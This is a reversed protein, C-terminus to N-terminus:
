ALEVLRPELTGDGVEITLLSRRPARRRQTPSGPNLIWVGDCLTVEPLHSHGYVVAHCGPFAAALRRGRRQRPGADHVMGIRVGGAEVVLREPLSAQLAPEDNNGHVAEVPAVARLEDLVAATTFDGAHLVLHARAALEVCEAPLRRGRALHTDALVAVLM